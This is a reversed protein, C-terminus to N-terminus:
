RASNKGDWCSYLYESLEDQLEKVIRAKEQESEESGPPLPKIAQKRISRTLYHYDPKNPLKRLKEIDHLIEQLFQEFFNGEIGCIDDRMDLVGDTARTLVHFIYARRTSDMQFLRQLIKKMWGQFDNGYVLQGVDGGRDILPDDGLLHVYSDIAMMTTHTKAQEISEESCRLLLMEDPSIVESLECGIADVIKQLTSFKPMQRSKEYQVIVSPSTDLTKALARQSINRRKRAEMIKKGIDLM